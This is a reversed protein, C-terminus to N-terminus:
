ECYGGVNVRMDVCPRRWLKRGDGANSEMAIDQSLAVHMCDRVGNEMNGVIAIPEEGKRWPGMGYSM